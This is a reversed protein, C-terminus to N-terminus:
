VTKEGECADQDSGLLMPELKTRMALFCIVITLIAPILMNDSGMYKTVILALASAGFGLLTPLKTKATRWQDVCIVIFLATMAFDIGTTDFTLFRGVLAGLTCGVVWYAHDFLSVLFMYQESTTGEPPESACLLAYTEDTLAFMMYYKRAGFRKFRDLFSLGYVFYRFHVLLTTIAVTVLDTQAVLFPIAMYQMTGAYIIVSMFLAWIFNYGAQQLLIGFAIGMFLYGCMVPMTVTLVRRILAGHHRRPQYSEM